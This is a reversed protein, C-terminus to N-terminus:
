SGLWARAGTGRARPSADPHQAMGEAVAHATHTHTRTETQANWHMLAGRTELPSAAVRPLSLFAQATPAKTPLEAVRFESRIALNDAVNPYLASGSASFDGVPDLGETDLWVLDAATQAQQATQAVVVAVPAGVSLVRDTPVLAAMPLAMGPVLPNVRPQVLADFDGPGFVALVGPQARAEDLNVGRLVAHAYTSRVFVAHAMGPVRQNAVFGGEGRLLRADEVRLLTDARDTRLLTNARGDDPRPSTDASFMSVM